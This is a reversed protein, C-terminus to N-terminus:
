RSRPRCGSAFCPSCTASPPSSMRSRAPWGARTCTTSSRTAAFARTTRRSTTSSRRCSRPCSARSAAGSTAPSNSSPQDPDDAHRRVKAHLSDVTGIVGFATVVYGLALTFTALGVITEVDVLAKYFGARALVDGFTLSSIAGASLYFANGADAQLRDSLTFWGAELGPLYMMAFGSIELGLWLAVTAPLMTASAISLPAPRLPAPVPRCARRLVGWAPRHLRNAIFSFGDYNFVTLFLDVLTALVVLAGAAGIALSGARAM